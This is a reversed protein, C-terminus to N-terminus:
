FFGKWKGNSKYHPDGLFLAKQLDEPVEELTVVRKRFAKLKGWYQRKALDLSDKAERWDEEIKQWEELLTRNVYSM